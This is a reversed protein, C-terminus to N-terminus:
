TINEIFFDGTLLKEYFAKRVKSIASKLQWQFKFEVSNYKTYYDNHIIKDLFNYKEEDYSGPVNKFGRLMSVGWIRSSLPYSIGLSDCVHHQYTNVRMERLVDNYTSSPKSSPMAVMGFNIEYMKYPECEALHCMEHVMGEAMKSSLIVDNSKEGLRKGSWDIIFPCSDLYTENLLKKFNNETM